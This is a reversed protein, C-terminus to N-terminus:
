ERALGRLWHTALAVGYGTAGTSASGEEKRHAPGALDIHAWRRLPGVFEALFAAATSAGGWRSASNRLDAHAGQMEESFERWLPLRWLREGARAASGLLAAALDDDPTFLGAAAEGLAIVCHGTLTSLELLHEAGEEVALSLADALILRGEADTNIVEVTKGSYCRLIDGPRYADGDPMNEAIPLYVSLSIPLDLEAAATAIALATVAGCKDHKMEEMSAAPKISLGGSDFTIGKGVLAVAPGPRAKRLRVLRPPCRAGRGVSLIGGMGRRILAEVDLVEVEFGLEAGVQRAQAELWDPTADNPPMNGLDRALTVARAITRAAPLAAQFAGEQGPSPVFRALELTRETKEKRALFRDFRYSGGALQRLLREAHDAGAVPHDPLAVALRSVGNTRAQEVTRRLWCELALEDVEGAAGLGRLAVAAVPSDELATEACQGESGRFGPRAGLGSVARAIAPPWGDPVAPSGELCGIVLLDADVRDRPTVEIALPEPRTTPPQM